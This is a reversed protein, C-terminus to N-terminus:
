RAKITGNECGTLLRRLNLDFSMATVRCSGHAEVWRMRLAGTMVQLSPSGSTLRPACTPAQMLSSFRSRQQAQGTRPLQGSAAAWRQVMSSPQLGLCLTSSFFAVSVKWVCITGGEDASIVEQYASNFLMCAIPQLHKVAVDNDHKRM